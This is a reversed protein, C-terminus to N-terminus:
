SYDFILSFCEAYKVGMQSGRLKALAEINELSRPYPPEMIESKYTSLLSIKKDFFESINIFINPNFKNFRPDLGYETESITEYVLVKKISPFRFKKTCSFACEFTIKHDSHIDGPNPLLVEEPEFERIVNSIKEIIISPSFDEIKTAPINLCFFNEKKISLGKRVKNIENQRELVIQPPWGNEENIETILLWATEGGESLRRLMTGGCGLLEDDAHPAVVLTKM